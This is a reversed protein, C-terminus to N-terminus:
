HGTASHDREPLSILSALDEGNRDEARTLGRHGFRVAQSRVPYRAAFELQAGRRIWARVPADWALGTKRRRFEKLIHPAITENGREDVLIHELGFREVIERCADDGSLFGLREATEIM